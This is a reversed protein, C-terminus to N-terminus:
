KEGQRVLVDKHGKFGLVKAVRDVTDKSGAGFRIINHVTTVGVKARKAITKMPSENVDKFQRYAKGLLDTDFTM